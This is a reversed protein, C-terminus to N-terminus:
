SVFGYGDIPSAVIYENSYTIALVAKISEDTQKGAQEFIRM